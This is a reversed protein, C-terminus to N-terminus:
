NGILIYAGIVKCFELVLKTNVIGIQKLATNQIM